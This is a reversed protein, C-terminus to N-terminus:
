AWSRVEYCDARLMLAYAQRGQERLVKVRADAESASSFSEYRM